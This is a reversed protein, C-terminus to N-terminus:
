GRSSTALMRQFAKMAGVNFGISRNIDGAKLFELDLNVSNGSHHVEMAEVEEVAIASAKAGGTTMHNKSTTRLSSDMASLTAAFPVVDRAKFDPTNANAVNGAVVSLRQSLWRNQRMAVDFLDTSNM